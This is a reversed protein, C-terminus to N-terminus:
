SITAKKAAIRELRRKKAERCKVRHADAQAALMKAREMEAKRKFIYEMLVRRNKFTNGKVKLYLKRHFHRDIKKADRYKRLLRRLVRMRMMWLDKKNTRAERTGKRKGLGSHRGKSRAIKDRRVRYKSHTCVPKRIILGDNVLRRINQRSTANAIEVTENPDLWIKSRGCRMVAAALRKQFRLNSMKLVILLSDSFDLTM